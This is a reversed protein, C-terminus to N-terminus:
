AYAYFHILAIPQGGACARQPSEHSSTRECMSQEQHMTGYQAHVHESRTSTGHRRCWGVGRTTTQGMGVGSNMIPQATRQTGRTAAARQAATGPRSHPLTAYHLATSALRSSADSSSRKPRARLSHRINKVCPSRKQMQMRCPDAMCSTNRNWVACHNAGNPTSQHKHILCEIRFSHQLLGLTQLYQM